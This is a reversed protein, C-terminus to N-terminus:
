RHAVLRRPVDGGTLEPRAFYGPTVSTGRLELEGVERDGRRAGTVPDCVRLELGRLTRGLFPLRRTTM